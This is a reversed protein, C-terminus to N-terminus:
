HCLPVSHGNRRKSHPRVPSADPHRGEADLMVADHSASGVIIMQLHVPTVCLSVM